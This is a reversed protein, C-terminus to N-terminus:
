SIAVLANDSSHKYHINMYIRGIAAEPVMDGAAKGGILYLKGDVVKGAYFMEEDDSITTLVLFGADFALDRYIKFGSNACVLKEQETCFRTPEVVHFPNGTMVWEFGEYRRKDVIAKAESLTRCIYGEGEMLLKGCNSLYIRMKGEIPTIAADDAIFGGQAQISSMQHHEILTSMKM